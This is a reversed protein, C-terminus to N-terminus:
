EEEMDRFVLAVEDWDIYMPECGTIGKFTYGTPVDLANKYLTFEECTVCLQFGNKFVFVVKM